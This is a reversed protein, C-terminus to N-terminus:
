RLRNNPAACLVTFFADFVERGGESSILHDRGDPTAAM